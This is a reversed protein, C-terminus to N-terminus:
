ALEKSAIFAIEGLLPFRIYLIRVQDRSTYRFRKALGLRSEMEYVLPAPPMKFVNLSFQGVNIKM